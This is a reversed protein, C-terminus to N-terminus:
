RRHVVPISDANRDLREAAQRRRNAPRYGHDPRPNNNEDCSFTFLDLEADSDEDIVARNGLPQKLWVRVPADFFERSALPGDDAWADFCVLVRVFVENAQEDVVVACVGNEGRALAVRLELECENRERFGIARRLRQPRGDPCRPCWKECWENHRERDVAVIPQDNWDTTWYEWHGLERAQHTPHNEAASTMYLITRAGVCGDRPDPGISVSENSLQFVGNCGATGV